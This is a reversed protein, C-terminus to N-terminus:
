ALSAHSRERAPNIDVGVILQCRGARVQWM